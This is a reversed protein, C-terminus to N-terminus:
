LNGKKDWVMEVGKFPWITVEGIRDELMLRGYEDTGTIRAEFTKGDARYHWWEYIRFLKRLYQEQIIDNHGEKLLSYKAMIASFLDDLEKEPKFIRGTLNYLSVAQPMYDRFTKQNLNLGIGAVTWAIHNGMISNEILMGAIKRSEIMIDNPWKIAVGETHSSLYDAIGLSVVQSLLFQASAQLFGPYLILSFTLNCNDESEWINTAQGRGHTQRFTLVVTGEELPETQLRGTAYNNTSPTENLYILHM